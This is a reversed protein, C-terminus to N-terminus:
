ILPRNDKRILAFTLEVTIGVSHFYGTDDMVDGVSELYMKPSFALKMIRNATAKSIYLGDKKTGSPFTVEHLYGYKASSVDSVLLTIRRKGTRERSYEFQNQIQRTVADPMLRSFAQIWRSKGIVVLIRRQSRLTIKGYSRFIKGEKWHSFSVINRDVTQNIILEEMDNIGGYLESTEISQESLHAFGITM